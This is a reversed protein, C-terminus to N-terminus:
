NFVEFLIGIVALGMPQAAADGFVYADNYHVFHVELPYAVGDVTHESGTNESIGWHFHFQQLRFNIVDDSTRGRDIYCLTGPVSPYLTLRFIIHLLGVKSCTQRRATQCSLTQLTACVIGASMTNEDDSDVDYQVCLLICSLATQWPHSGHM